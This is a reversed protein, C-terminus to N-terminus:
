PKAWTFRVGGVPATSVSYGISSLMRTIPGSTYERHVRHETEIAFHIPHQQLTGLGGSIIKAEAGEVDMKMFAPVGLSGCADSLSLTKVERLKDGDTCQAFGALGAGLTGDMSFLETGTKDSLAQKVPIVNDLKHLEINRLLYTYSLDDPEFAYVKGGPGVMQAFFYSTAGAHAGVDWVVDGAKPQYSRTYADMSDEEVLGPSWLSVGSKRYRHLAPKSFDLVASGTERAPAVTDFLLDWTHLVSPVVAYHSEPLLMRRDGKSLTLLGDSAEMRFGNVRAQLRISSRFVPNAPGLSLLYERMSERPRLLRAKSFNLTM